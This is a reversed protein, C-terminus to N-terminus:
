PPSIQPKESESSIFILLSAALVILGLDRHRERVITCRNCRIGVAAHSIAVATCYAFVMQHATVRRSYAASLPVLRLSIRCCHSAAYSSIAGMASLYLFLISSPPPRALAVAALRAHLATRPGIPAVAIVSARTPQDMLEANVMIFLFPSSITKVFFEGASTLCRRTSAVLSAASRNTPCRQASVSGDNAPLLTQGSRAISKIALPPPPFRVACCIPAKLAAAHPPM